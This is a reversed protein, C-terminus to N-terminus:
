KKIKTLEDLLGEVNYGQQKAIQADALAQLYNGAMKNAQARYFYGNEFTPNVSITKSFLEVSKAYNKMNFYAVGQKFNFDPNNPDGLIIKDYLDVSKQYDKLNLYSLAINSKVMVNSSDILEAAKFDLLAKNYEGTILYTLGRNVFAEINSNDIKLSLSYDRISSKYDKLLGYVNGRNSLVPANNPNIELCKNYDNIAADYENMERALYNGRNKYAVEADKPHIKIAQTFLTGSNKWVKVMAISQFSFVLMVLASLTYVINKAMKKKNKEFFDNAWIAVILSLGIYPVYTYREAMIMQGVSIFQLVLVIMVFFYGIGFFYLKNKKFSAMLFALLGANFFLSFYCAFPLSEKIPFKVPYPYVTSLDYPFIFKVIYMMFSYSAFVFRQLNSMIEWKSIAEDQVKITVYGIIASVLLFPVKELVSKLFFKRELFIDILFLVLPFAVAAPKSLVSFCFFTFAVIYFGFKNKFSYQLYFISALLFFFTYLVDKREAIWAVSEVHMPHLAFIAAVFFAVFVKRKSIIFAFVYVLVINLLHLIINVAHFFGPKIKDSNSDSLKYDIGLSIMTLPHYNTAYANKFYYSVQDSLPKSIIPNETVYTPDDWNTFSHNFAPFYVVTTVLLIAALFIWNFNEQSSVSEIKIEKKIQKMKM